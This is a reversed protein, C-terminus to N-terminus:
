CCVLSLCVLCSESIFDGLRSGFLSFVESVDFQCPYQILSLCSLFCFSWCRVHLPIISPLIFFSSFLFFSLLFLSCRSFISLPFNSITPFPHLLLTHITNQATDESSGYATMCTHKSQPMKAIRVVQNQRIRSDEFELCGKNCEFVHKLLRPFM